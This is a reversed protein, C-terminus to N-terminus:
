EIFFGKFKPFVDVALFKALVGLSSSVESNKLAGDQFVIFYAMRGQVTMQDPQPGVNLSVRIAPFLLSEGEMVQAGFATLLIRRHKNINALDDIVALPSRERQGDPLHFPQLSEIIAVARPDVGDLRHRKKVDDKFAKETLAIPFLNHRTPENGASSVLEWVLYDLCTRLCQLCDGAILGFKTPIPEREHFALHHYQASSDPQTVMEGPTSQYYALLERNYEDFHSRARNHKQRVSELSAM